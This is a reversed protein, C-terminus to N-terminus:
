CDGGEIINIQAIVTLVIVPLLWVWESVGTKAEMGVIALIALVIGCSSKLHKFFREM